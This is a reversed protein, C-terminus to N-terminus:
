LFKYSLVIKGTRGAADGTSVPIVGTPAGFARYDVPPRRGLLNGIYAGVTLNKIGSWTLSYDFNHSTHVRCESASLGKDACKAITWQDDNYDGKLSYSSAFTYRLSQDWDGVKYAFTTGAVIKPTGYRGALNDGFKALTPSYVKYSHTYTTDIALGFEGISSPISGTVGLDVGDTKTQFLNEFMGNVARLYYDTDGVGYQARVQADTLGNPDHSFTPDNAFSTARNIVGPAQESEAALMDQVSRTGIEGRRHINWYDVTGSWHTSAQIVTGLSFTKTTEPKLSPNNLTKEAVSRGCENNYVAQARALLLAQNPDSAPLASGQNDLDTAYALAADCRKPDDFGSSFAFKTSKASETLNPARFGTEYSGRLAFVSNPTFKLGVKPSFHAGFGPFKDIRGALNGELTQVIPISAEAFVAGFNRSADSQSTGYGVIDGSALNASPTITMQEHRLDFGTALQVAGAPLQAIDTRATADWFYTQDHATYGYVPFLMNLVQASNPQGIKYGGPINFFDDGVPPLIGTVPDPQGYDGIVQKFGSDSFAGQQRNNTTGGMVGIASEWDLTKTSGKLGTLLRYQTTDTQQYTPADVFRYRLEASEGTYNVPNTAPINRYFFTKPDGTTPNGWGVSGLAEGGYTQYPSQYNVRIDSVTLETFSELTDSIRKKGSLYANIRKAPPIAQFRSYRDYRCLGNEVDTCGDVPGAGDPAVLNGPYSYSSKSGFVASHAAYAPNVDKVVSRWMLADRNFMEITGMVNYGDKAYDGFGATIGGSRQGFLGNGLGHKISKENSYDLQLGTFATKTIINIVGAVADSGYIAGGGSKLIEVREIAGLPIADVNTFVENYDALPYAPLRRGNLLVLTSQKGLGRLSASSAGPSFSNSGGLDSLGGTSASISDLLERVSTAGSHVIDEHRLMQVPSVGEADIQKLRSGTVEVRQAQDASSATAAPAAASQAWIPSVAAVCALTMLSQRFVRSRSLNQANM